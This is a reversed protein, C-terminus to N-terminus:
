KKAIVIFFFYWMNTINKTKIFKIINNIICRRTRNRKIKKKRNFSNSTIDSKNANKDKVARKSYWNKSKLLGKEMGNKM